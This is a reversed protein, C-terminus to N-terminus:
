TPSPIRAAEVHCFDVQRPPEEVIAAESILSASLSASVYVPLRGGKLALVFFPSGCHREYRSRNPASQQSSSASLTVIWVNEYRM